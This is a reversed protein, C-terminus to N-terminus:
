SKNLQKFDGSHETGVLTFLAPDRLRTLVIDIISTQDPKLITAVQQPQSHFEASRYYCMGSNPRPEVRLGLQGNSIKELKHSDLYFSMVHRNKSNKQRDLMFGKKFNGPVFNAGSLLILDFDNIPNGLDDSVRVVLMSGRFRKRQGSDNAASMQASLQQYQATTRIDLCQLIRQVVPKQKANGTTVSAMIGKSKGSHSARNIVEFAVDHQPTICQIQKLKVVCQSDFGDCSQRSEVLKIYSFNLNAAAVRVVGDSGSEATYSNLYDYLKKDITEGTLVFPLPGEGLTFSELWQLNLQLQETSGLELWDLVRQGPEVGAFFSNIRGVRSKGLQALASGHNAPALMILHTLPCTNIAEGSFFLQLWQRLVPAGTSHTIAAFPKNGLVTLRADDFARAIDDLRVEDDFSIYRGLHIHHVVLESEGEALRKLVQPLQGYTDTNTVSWGHVFVLDM